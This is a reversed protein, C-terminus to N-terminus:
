PDSQIWPQNRKSTDAQRRRQRKEFPRAPGNASLIERVHEAIVNWLYQPGAPRISIDPIREVRTIEQRHCRGRQHHWAQESKKYDGARREQQGGRRAMFLPLKCLARERVRVLRVPPSRPSEKRLDEGIM